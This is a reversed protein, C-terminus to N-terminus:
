RIVGKYVRYRSNALWQVVYWLWVVREVYPLLKRSGEKWRDAHVLITGFM